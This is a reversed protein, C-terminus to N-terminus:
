STNNKARACTPGAHPTSSPFQFSTCLKCTPFPPPTQMIPIPTLFPLRSTPSFLAHMLSHNGPIPISIAYCSHSHYFWSHSLRGRLTKIPLISQIVNTIPYSFKFYTLKVTLNVSCLLNLSGSGRSFNVRGGGNELTCRQVAGPLV